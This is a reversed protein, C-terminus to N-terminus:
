VKDLNIKTYVYTNVSETGTITINEYLQGNPKKHHQLSTIVYGSYKM